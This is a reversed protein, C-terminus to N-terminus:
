RTQTVADCGGDAAASPRLQCRMVHHELGLGRPLRDVIVPSMVTTSVIGIAMGDPNLIPSGSMGGEFPEAFSLWSGHRKAERDVWRGKLSLVRTM